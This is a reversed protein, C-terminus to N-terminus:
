FRAFAVYIYATCDNEYARASGDEVRTYRVRNNRVREKIHTSICAMSKKINLGYTPYTFGAFGCIYAKNFGLRVICMCLRQLMAQFTCTFWSQATRISPIAYTNAIRFYFLMRLSCGYLHHDNSGLRILCIIQQLVRHCSVNCAVM